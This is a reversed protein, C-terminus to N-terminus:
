KEDATTFESWLPSIGDQDAYMYSKLEGLNIRPDSYCPVYKLDPNTKKMELYVGQLLCNVMEQEPSYEHNYQSLKHDGDTLPLTSYTAGNAADSRGDSTKNSAIVTNEQGDVARYVVLVSDYKGEPVNAEIQKSINGACLVSGIGHGFSTSTIRSWDVKVDVNTRLHGNSWGEMDKAMEEIRTIEQQHMTTVDVKNSYKSEVRANPLILVLVDWDSCGTPGGRYASASIPSAVALAMVIALLGTLVKKLRM